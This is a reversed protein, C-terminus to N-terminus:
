RAGFSCSGRAKLISCRKRGARIQGDCDGIKVAVAVEVQGADLCSAAYRAGAGIPNLKLKGRRAPFGHRKDRGRTTEADLRAIDVSIMGDVQDEGSCPEPLGYRDQQVVAM